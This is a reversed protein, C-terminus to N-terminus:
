DDNAGGEAVDRAYETNIREMVSKHHKLAEAANVMLAGCNGCYNGPETTSYYGCASCEGFVATEYAFVWLGISHKHQTEPITMGPIIMM